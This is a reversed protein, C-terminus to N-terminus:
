RRESGGAVALANLFAQDLIDQHAEVEDFWAKEKAKAINLAEEFTALIHPGDLGKLRAISNWTALDKVRTQYGNVVWSYLRRDYLVPLFRGDTMCLVGEHQKEADLWEIRNEHLGPKPEALPKPSAYEGDLTKLTDLFEPVSEFGAKFCEEQMERLSGETLASWDILRDAEICVARAEKATPRTLQDIWLGGPICFVRFERPRHFSFYAFNQGVRTGRMPQGDITKYWKKSAM